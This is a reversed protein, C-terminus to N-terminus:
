DEIAGGSEITRRGEITPLGENTPLGEITLLRPAATTAGHSVVRRCAPADRGATVLDVGPEVRTAIRGGDDGVM